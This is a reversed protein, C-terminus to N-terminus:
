ELLMETFSKNVYRCLIIFLPRSEPPDDRDEEDVEDTRPQEQLKVEDNTSQTQADGSEFHDNM